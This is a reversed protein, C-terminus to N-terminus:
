LRGSSLLVASTPTPGTGGGGMWWRAQMKVTVDTELLFCQHTRTKQKNQESGVEGCQGKTRLAWGTCVWRSNRSPSPDLRENQLKDLVSESGGKSWKARRLCKSKYETREKARGARHRSIQGSVLGLARDSHEWPPWASERVPCSVSLVTNREGVEQGTPWWWTTSGLM